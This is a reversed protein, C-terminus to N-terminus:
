RPARARGVPSSTSYGGARRASLRLRPAEGVREIAGPRKCEIARVRSGSSRLRSSPPATRGSWSPMPSSTSPMRAGALAHPRQPRQGLAPIPFDNGNGINALLRRRDGVVDRPLKVCSDVM